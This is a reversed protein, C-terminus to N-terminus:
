EETRMMEDRERGGQRKERDQKQQGIGVEVTMLLTQRTNRDEKQKHDETGRDGQKSDRDEGDTGEKRITLTETEHTREQTNGM